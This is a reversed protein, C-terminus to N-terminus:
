LTLNKIWFTLTSTEYTFKLFLRSKKCYRKAGILQISLCDRTEKLSVYYAYFLYSWLFNISGPVPM